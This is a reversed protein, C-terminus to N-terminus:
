LDTSLSTVSEEGPQFNKIEDWAISVIKKMPEYMYSNEKLEPKIFHLYDDLLDVGNLLVSVILAWKLTGFIAGLLRNLWGLAIAKLLKSIIYGILHLLLAVILFIALYAIIQCINEPFSVYKAILLAAQPAFFKACLLAIIIAAIATLEKVLGQFLGRILGYVLPLLLIIDIYSM